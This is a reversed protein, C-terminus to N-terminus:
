LANVNQASVREESNNLADNSLVHVIHAVCRSPLPIDSQARRALRRGDDSLGDLSKMM